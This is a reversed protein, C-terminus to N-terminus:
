PAIVGEAEDIAAAAGELYFKIQTGFVPEQVVLWDSSIVVDRIYDTNKFMLGVQADKTVCRFQMIESRGESITFAEVLDSSDIDCFVEQGKVMLLCDDSFSSCYYELKNKNDSSSLVAQATVGNSSVLWDESIESQGLVALPLFLVSLFSWKM